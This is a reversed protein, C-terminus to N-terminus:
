DSDKDTKSLNFSLNKHKRCRFELEGESNMEMDWGSAYEGCIACKM